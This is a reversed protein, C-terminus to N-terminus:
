HAVVAVVVIVTLAGTVGTIVPMGAVMQSFAGVMANGVECLPMLPLQDPEPTTAFLKSGDPRLPFIM